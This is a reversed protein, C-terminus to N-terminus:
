HLSQLKELTSEVQETALSIREASMSGKLIKEQDPHTLFQELFDGDLFGTAADEGDSRGRSNAPARWRCLVFILQSSLRMYLHGYQTHKTRGPGTILGAMNRQIATLDLSVEDSVHHILGIRGTSTFFIHETEFIPRQGEASAQSSLGGVIFKNVLEGLYYNGTRELVKGDRSEPLTFTVLNSDVQVRSWLSFEYGGPLVPM